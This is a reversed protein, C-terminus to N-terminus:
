PESTAGEIGHEQADLVFRRANGGFIRARDADSIPAQEVFEVAKALSEWPYDSGFLVREPGLEMLVSVLASDLFNGSTTVYVNERLVESPRREISPRHRAALFPQTFDLDLRYLWFTLSEGLHGLILQLAPLEDFLGSYVLRLAQVATEVGYGLGPGPLAWGYGLFPGILSAHPLTPHIYVPVDLRAATQFIPRYRPEDLFGDGVHSRLMVGKFGLETVCRELEEAAAEPRAPALTAFGLFRDPHREIAAALTDNISRSIREGVEPELQETAPGSISLVQVDVGAEDMSALRRDELDLLREDVVVRHEHFLDPLSPEIWLRVTEDDVREQRPPRERAHLLDVFEQTYFHAEFDIKV